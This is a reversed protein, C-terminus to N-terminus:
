GGKLNLEALLFFFFFLVLFYFSYTICRERWFRIRTNHWDKFFLTIKVLYYHFVHFFYCVIILSVVVSPLKM